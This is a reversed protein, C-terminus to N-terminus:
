AAPRGRKIRTLLVAGAVAALGAILKPNRQYIRTAKDLAANGGAAIRDGISSPAPLTDARGLTSADDTAPAVNRNRSFNFFGMADEKTQEPHVRSERAFNV